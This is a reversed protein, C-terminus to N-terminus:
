AESGDTEEEEVGLIGQARLEAQATRRLERSVEGQTGPRVQAHLTFTMTSDNLADVGRVSPAELLHQALEADARVADAARGLAARVLGVDAGVPVRIEAVARSWQQTQNGARLIEGNRVYWLTGDFSRVQTLRLNVEEVTGVAGAGLDVVDGVGFQDEILLFV